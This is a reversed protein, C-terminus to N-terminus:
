PRTELDDWCPGYDCDKAIEEFCPACIWEYVDGDADRNLVRLEDADEGCWTCEVLYGKRALRDGKQEADPLDFFDLM